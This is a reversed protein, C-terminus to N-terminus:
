LLGPVDGAAAVVHDDYQGFRNFVEIAQHLTQEVLVPVNTFKRGADCQFSQLAAQGDRELLPRRHAKLRPQDAFCSKAAVRQARFPLAESTTCRVATRMLPRMNEYIVEVCNNGDETFWCSASDGIVRSAIKNAMVTAFVHECRVKQRIKCFSQGALSEIHHEMQKITGGPDSTAARLVRAVSWDALVHSVAHRPMKMSQGMCKQKMAAKAHATAETRYPAARVPWLSDINV